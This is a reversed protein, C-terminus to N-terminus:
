WGETDPDDVLGNLYMRIKVTMIRILALAGKDLEREPDSGFYLIEFGEMADLVAQIQRKAMELNPVVDTKDQM